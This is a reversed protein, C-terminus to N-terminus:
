SPYPGLPTAIITSVNVSLLFLVAAFTLAAKVFPPPLIPVGPQTDNM